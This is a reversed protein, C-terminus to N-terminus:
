SVSWDPDRSARSRLSKGESSKKKKKKETSKKKKVRKTPSSAFIDDMSEPMCREGRQSVGDTHFSRPIYASSANSQQRTPKAPKPRTGKKLPRSHNSVGTRSHGTYSARSHNSIGARSHNSFGVSHKSENMSLIADVQAALAKDVALAKDYSAISGSSGRREAHRSADNSGRRKSKTEFVAPPPVYVPDSIISQSTSLSTSLDRSKRRPKKGKRLKKKTPPLPAEEALGLPTAFSKSDFSQVDYTEIEDTRDSALSVMDRMDEPIDNIDMDDFFNSAQEKKISDDVCINKGFVPDELGLGSVQRMLQRQRNSPAIVGGVRPGSLIIEEEEAEEAEVGRDEDRDFDDLDLGSVQRMLQKDRQSPAIIRRLDSGRRSSSPSIIDEHEETKLRGNSGFPKSDVCSESKNSVPSFCGAKMNALRSDMMDDAEERKPSMSSTVTGVQKNREKEILV